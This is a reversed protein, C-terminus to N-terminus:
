IAIRSLWPAEDAMEAKNSCGFGRTHSVLPPALTSSSHYGIPPYQTQTNIPSAPTMFVDELATTNISPQGLSPEPNTILTPSSQQANSYPLIAALFPYTSATHLPSSPSPTPEHDSGFKRKRPTVQPTTSAVNSGTSQAWLASWYRQFSGPATATIHLVPGSVRVRSGPFSKQGVSAQGILHPGTIVSFPLVNAFAQYDSSFLPSLSCAM